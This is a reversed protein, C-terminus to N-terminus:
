GLDVRMNLFCSASEAVRAHRLRRVRRKMVSLFFENMGAAHDGLRSGCIKVQVAPRNETAEGSNTKSNVRDSCKHPDRMLLVILPAPHSKLLCNFSLYTSACARLQHTNGPVPKALRVLFVRLPVGEGEPDASNSLGLAANEMPHVRNQLLATSLKDVM